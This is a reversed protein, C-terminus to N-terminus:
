ADRLADRKTKAQALARRLASARSREILQRFMHWEGEFREMAELLATRNHLFIDDWLDPDSKAVRTMDLFSPPAKTLPKASVARTLCAAMVHPLHSTGALLRDHQPPSMVVVRAHIGRWLQGVRTLARRNTHPIPTLVCIAGDFLRANAADMGREESGALPHGGVFAVQNVLGKELAHVIRTKTSGVDTLISRPRMQHSVRRALPGITDVPTALIVLDAEAVAQPLNTTGIDIAGRRKALQLTQRKRSVGVVTRALRRRRIAMGLSGGILGLGVITVQKFQAM